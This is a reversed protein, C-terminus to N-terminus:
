PTEITVSVGNAVELLVGEPTVVSGACRTRWEYNYACRSDQLAARLSVRHLCYRAPPSGGPCGSDLVRM